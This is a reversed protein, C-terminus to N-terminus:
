FWDLKAMLGTTRGLGMSLYGSGGDWYAKNSLNDVNFQLTLRHGDGVQTVYRINASSTSYGPLYGQELPGLPRKGTYFLGGGVSFGPAWKPSYDLYVNGTREPTSDPTKGIQAADAADVQKADLLLGGASISLEDTLEGVFNLEFGKYSSMGSQVFLDLGPTTSPVRYGATPVSINFYAISATVNSIIETKIGVERQRSVRPGFPQNPNVVGFGPATGGEQLGEIYSAYISTDPRFQWILAASPSTEKAQYITQLTPSTQTVSDYDSRRIGAMFQWQDNLRMRDFVYVGDDQVHQPQYGIAPRVMPGKPDFRVPNYINQLGTYISSTADSRASNQFRLNRMAGMSIQHSLPGTDFAGTVELRYNNNAYQDNANRAMALTGQGTVPNTLTIIGQERQDRNTVARGAALSVAWNQNFSYTVKGLVNQSNGRTSAWPGASLYNSPDILKPLTIVGNVAAPIRILAQENITRSLKEYDVYFNLNDSARWDGALSFFGTHGKIVDIGRSSLDGGAANVRLGFRNDVGFRSGADVHGIMQGSDDWSAAVSLNPKVNARKTVLNVVGGPSTFGYYLASSGKLVEVREKDYMPMAILNNLPLDGNLRYNSRNDVSLGRITLNDALLGNTQSRSVGPSNKLVDAVGQVNQADMIARTMVNVTSPTDLVSQDRFAGVQVYNSKYGKGTDANVTITSLTTASGAKSEAAPSADQPSSDAALAPALPVSAFAFGIAVSLMNKRLCCERM